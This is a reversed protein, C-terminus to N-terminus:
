RSQIRSVGSSLTRPTAGSNWMVQSTPCTARASCTGQGSTSAWRNWGSTTSSAIRSCRGVNVTPDIVTNMASDPTGPTPRSSKAESRM